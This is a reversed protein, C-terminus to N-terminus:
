VKRHVLGVWADSPYITQPSQVIVLTVYTLLILRSIFKYMSNKCSGRFGNVNWDLMMVVVMMMLMTMVMLMDADDAGAETMVNPYCVEGVVTKINLSNQLDDLEKRREETDVITIDNGEEVELIRAISAGVHDAGIIIIKM